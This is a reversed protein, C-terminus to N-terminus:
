HPRAPHATRRANTEPTGPCHPGTGASPSCPWPSSHKPTTFGFAIRTLVRIKTNTSEILGQSLGHDLAADVTDRHNVIRRSLEVFVTIRCRRAWSIWKDVAEKGAQGKVSFVHRLGEKL